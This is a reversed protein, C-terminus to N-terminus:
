QLSETVEFPLEQQKPQENQAPKKTEDNVNKKRLRTPHTCFDRGTLPIYSCTRLSVKLSPQLIACVTGSTTTKLRASCRMAGAIYRPDYLGRQITM